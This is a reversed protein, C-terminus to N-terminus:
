PMRAALWGETSRRARGVAELTGLAGMARSPALGARRAIEETSRPSRMSLADVVRGLEPDQLLRGLPSTAGHEAPGGWLTPEAAARFGGALEAMEAADTVCIADRERLLRHCGVSSPSTVPGPVAGLPRGLAAAHNATNLSGSRRGAEVVVVAASAAAILRNRQLFRWRTPPEGCPLESVVAGRAAIETLLQEHGVPYFRDIGGALFAVTAGDNRLASRHATGDIGYAGGSVIAFGREVLGAAAELAVQQGYSSAARAGVLAIGSGPDAVISADGRVWLALPANRGLDDLGGPWEADGPVVLRAGVRASQEFSREVAPPDVRPSWRAVARGLERSPVGGADAVARAIAEVSGGDFLLEATRAAGLREVLEGLVGDGPEAVSGLAARAAADRRVHEPEAAAGPGRVAGLASVARAGLDSASRPRPATRGSM